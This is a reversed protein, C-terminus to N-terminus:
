KDYFSVNFIAGTKKANDVSLRYGSKEALMRAISLGLGYGQTASNTRSTDARYFRDFIKEIDKKDVGPGEDVVRLTITSKEKRMSITIKSGVPSYKVANDVYISLIQRLSIPNIIASSMGVKNVISINKAIADKKHIEIADTVIDNLDVKQTDGVVQSSSLDLLSNTLMTLSQIQNINERLLTDVSAKSRSHKKLAVENSLLLSTLPTRLEHSADSIFRDQQSISLEIPRLTRRALIYSLVSGGILLSVNLLVLSLLVSKKTDSDRRDIRDQLTDTIREVQQIRNTQPPIPRNLRTSVLGYIIFSFIVSLTMIVFLYSLTLKRTNKDM